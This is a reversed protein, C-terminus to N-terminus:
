QIPLRRVARARYDNGKPGDGQGGGYFSQFGACAPYSAHQERSWYWKDKLQDKLSAWLLSQELRSPLDCGREKAWAMSANWDGEFEGPLLIVHHLKASVSVVGVWLEGANLPPIFIPAATIQTSAAHAASAAAPNQM